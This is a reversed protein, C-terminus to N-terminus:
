YINCSIEHRLVKYEKSQIIVTEEKKQSFVSALVSKISKQQISPQQQEIYFDDLTYNSKIVKTQATFLAAQSIQDLQPANKHQKLHSESQPSLESQKKGFVDFYENQETDFGMM